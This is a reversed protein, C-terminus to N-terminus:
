DLFSMRRPVRATLDAAVRVLHESGLATEIEPEVTAVRGCPDAAIVARLAELRRGPDHFGPLTETLWQRLGSRFEAEDPTDRFDV